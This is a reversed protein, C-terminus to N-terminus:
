AEGRPRLRRVMVLGTAALILLAAWGDYLRDSGWFSGSGGPGATTFAYTKLWFIWGAHLGFGFWLGGTRERALALLWGVVALSLLGPLLEPVTVFGRLMQGLVVFGSTLSVSPPTPPRQFFHVFAYLGASIGTAVAFSGTRRLAAFLAGRFLLEEIASVALAAALTRGLHGAWLEASLSGNWTRAGFGVAALAVVGLSVWGLLAGDAAEQWGTRGTGHPLGLASRSTVGCVRLLPWLGLIALGLL